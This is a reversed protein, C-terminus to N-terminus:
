QAPAFSFDDYYIVDVDGNPWIDVGSSSTCERSGLLVDGYYFDCTKVDLNIAIKLEVWQDRLLDAEVRTAADLNNVYVKGTECNILATGLGYCWYYLQGATTTAPVYQMVTLVYAGYTVEPWYPVLDDRGGVIELSNTGSYAVADSVRAGWQADGQWGEWGDVDHMNSGVALSDFDEILTTGVVEPVSRYLRLADLLIMGQGGVAGMRELGVSLTTVNSVNLSSLDIDWMQWARRKLDDPDGDYLVKTGNIKVYMQQAANTPDGLFMLTLAKIGYKTWDRVVDLDAVNATIESYGATTNDYLLPASQEGDYVISTELSPQFAITYGMTSGNVSPNDFGDIWTEYVLNSDEQDAPLDNYSEFDDVVLYEPTSFNWVEGQWMTPTEAENVEDVRWYYTEGLDVSPTYGTETVTTVTATGDIVAQEDTGLYVDHEAADRGARWSFILNVDVDTAGTAPDPERALVPISFFRVESLGYQPLIGGWNSNPTVKVYRATVGEFDVATNPTYGPTGVGRAFEHTTGLTAWNTGDVSYEIAADKIGFGIAPEMLTNQNWVWMEHLKLVKDFEYQIWAPGPDGTATLWMHTGVTSHLDNADLGSANVTNEPGQGPASSSATATIRESTVPYGIPETTFSWIEGKFVTSDPPANVEDIRWYYTQGFDLRVPPEYTTATQGASVADALVAGDVDDFVTDLYVNHTNAFQGPTWNLVVDRPVDTAEDEPDPFGAVTPIISKTLQFGSVYARKSNDTTWDSSVNIIIEGNGDSEVKEFLAYNEGQVWTAGNGGGGGNDVIQPSQTTTENTTSFLARGGNENPHFSAIYLDYKVGATLGSFVLDYPNADPDWGLIGSTLMLLDPAGWSWMGVTGDVSFNVATAAGTSDVLGTRSVDVNFGPGDVMQNWTTGVDSGGDGDFPGDLAAEDRETTDMSVSILMQKANGTTALILMAVAVITLFNRSHM